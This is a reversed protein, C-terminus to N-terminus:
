ASPVPWTLGPLVVCCLWRGALNDYSLCRFLGQGFGCAPVQIISSVWMGCSVQMSYPLQMNCRCSYFSCLIGMRPLAPPPMPEMHVPYAHPSIAQQLIPMHPCRCASPMHIDAHPRRYASAPDHPPDRSRAGPGQTRRCPRRRDARSAHRPRTGPTRVWGAGHCEVGTRIDGGGGGSM